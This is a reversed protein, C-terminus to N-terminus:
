RSEMGCSRNSGDNFYKCSWSLGPKRCAVSTGTGDVTKSVKGKECNCQRVANDISTKPIDCSATGQNSAAAATALAQSVEAMNGTTGAGIAGYAAANAPDSAAAISAAAGLASMVAAHNQSSAEYKAAWEADKRAQEAFRRDKDQAMREVIQARKVDGQQRAEGAYARLYYAARQNTDGVYGHYKLSYDQDFTFEGSNAALAKAEVADLRDELRDLDQERATVVRYEQLYAVSWIGRELALDLLKRAQAKNVTELTSVDEMSIRTYAYPHQELYNFYVTAMAETQPHRTSALRNLTQLLHGTVEHPNSGCYPATAKIGSIAKTLKESSVHGDRQEYYIAWDYHELKDSCDKASTARSLSSSANYTTCGGILSLTVTSLMIHFFRSRLAHCTM